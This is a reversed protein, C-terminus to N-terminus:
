KFVMDFDNEEFFGNFASQIENIDDINKENYVLKAPQSSRLQAIKFEHLYFQCVKYTSLDDNLTDKVVGNLKLEEEHM